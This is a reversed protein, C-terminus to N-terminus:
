FEGTTEGGNRSGLAQMVIVSMNESLFRVSGDALAVQAGGPHQSRLYVAGGSYSSVCPVKPTGNDCYATVDPTSPNPPLLSTFLTNGDWTNYYRGRLDHTTKDEAILIEGLFLTNTTGDTIDRIRTRSIMFFIGNAGTGNQGGRQSAPADYTTNGFSGLYNGHFGQGNAPTAGITANKGSNPDSPCMLTPIQTEVAPWGTRDCCAHQGIAFNFGNFLPGQDIYPLAAQMYGARNGGRGLADSVWLNNQGMPFSKAVDHYNHLALAFQKLNNKCASRRAAERAQQVAPLLLAILIAIIAIVVLLEILTFGRRWFRLKRM